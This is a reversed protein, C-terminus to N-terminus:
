ISGYERVVKAVQVHCSRYWKSRGKKQAQVHEPDAKWAQIQKENEWYSIAIEEDGERVSAFGGCGYKEMALKRMKEAVQYYDDDLETIRARFIVVFM